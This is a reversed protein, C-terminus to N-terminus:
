LPSPPCVGGMRYMHKCYQQLKRWGKAEIRSSGCIRLSLREALFCEVDVNWTSDEAASSGVGDVEAVGSMWLKSGGELFFDETSFFVAEEPADIHLHSTKKSYLIHVNAELTIRFVM